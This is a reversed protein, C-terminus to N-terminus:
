TQIPEKYAAPSSTKHSKSRTSRGTAKEREAEALRRRRERPSVPAAPDLGRSGTKHRTGSASRHRQDLDEAQTTGECRTPDFDVEKVLCAYAIRVLKAMCAVVQLNYAKGRAALREAFRRLAPNHTMGSRAATYLLQRLPASGRHSIGKQVLGDGSQEFVPDLGIYAVLADASHYHAIDGLEMIWACATKPGIGPITCLRRYPETDAVEALLSSWQSDALQRQARYSGVLAKMHTEAAAGSLAGVTQKAAAILAAARGESLHPIRAVSAQRARALRESTPYRELVTVVWAPLGSAHTYQVLCPHTQPLLSKIQNVVKAAMGQFSMTVRFLARLPHPDDANELRHRMLQVYQAIAVASSPDTKCRAPLSGAFRRVARPDVLSCCHEGGGLTRRWRDFSRVWNRELGGTSEVAAHVLFGRRSLDTLLRHWGAHGGPSDDFRCLSGVTTGEYLPIVDVYGKSVDVGLCCVDM